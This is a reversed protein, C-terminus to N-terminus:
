PQQSEMDAPGPARRVKLGAQILERIARPQTVNCREMYAKIAALLDPLVQLTVTVMPPTEEVPSAPATFGLWILKRAAAARSPLRYRSQYADIDDRMKAPVMLSIPILRM